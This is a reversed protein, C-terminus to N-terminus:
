SQEPKAGDDGADPWEEVIQGDRYIPIKLGAQKARERARIAARRLAAGANAIDSDQRKPSNERHSDSM